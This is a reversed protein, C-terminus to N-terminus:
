TQLCTVVSDLTPGQIGNLDKTEYAYYSLDFYKTVQYDNPAQAVVQCDNSFVLSTGSDIEFRFWANQQYSMGAQIGFLLQDITGSDTDEVIQSMQLSAEFTYDFVPVVEEYQQNGIYSLVEGIASPFLSVQSSWVQTEPDISSEFFSAFQKM